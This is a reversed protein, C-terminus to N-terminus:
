SSTLRKKAILIYDKNAEIGISHRGLKNAVMCTTGSGVFPDLVRGREFPAGCTCSPDHRILKRIIKQRKTSLTSNHLNKNPDTDTGSKMKGTNRGPRTDIRWEDYVAKKPAGCHTCVEFPCAALMIREILDQPYAAFHADHLREPNITWVSGILSGKGMNFDPTNGSYSSNGNDLQKVVGIPPMKAIIRRKVDSPNQAGASEYDKVAQGKYLQGCQKLTAESYPQYQAEFHYRRSKSFWLVYEYDTIFRNKYSGPMKSKKHWVIEQRFYWGNDEMLDILKNPIRLPRGNKWKDGIVVWITGNNTLVSHCMNFIIVLKNLYEISTKEWGLEDPGLNYHRQKYYPPSTIIANVSKDNISKIVDRIDGFLLM